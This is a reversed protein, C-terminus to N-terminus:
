TPPGHRALDAITAKIVKRAERRLKMTLGRAAWILVGASGIAYGFNVVIFAHKWGVYTTLPSAWLSVCIACPIIIIVFAILFTVYLQLLWIPHLVGPLPKPRDNFRESLQTEWILVSKGALRNIEEELTKLRESIVSIQYLPDANDYVLYCVLSILGFTGALWVLATDDAFKFKPDVVVYLTGSLLLTLIIQVNRVHNKFSSIQLHIEAKLMGYKKLLIDIFDKRLLTDTPTNDGGKKIVVRRAAM